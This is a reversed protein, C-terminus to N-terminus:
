IPVGTDGSITGGTHKHTHVSTGDATVDGTFDATSTGTVPGDLTIGGPARMLITQATPDLSIKTSGDLARLETATTSVDAIANPLSRVGVLVVGDSLDHMRLETQPQIGGSFWWADMCRAFFVVMCEDGVEIPFTMVCGGGQQFQVPCDLLVPLTMLTTKGTPDTAEAQITPQVVATQRDADFSVIQGPLATWIRAQAGKIAIRIADEYSNAREADSLSM